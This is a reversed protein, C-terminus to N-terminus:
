YTLTCRSKSRQNAKNYICAECISRITFLNAANSVIAIREAGVYRVDRTKSLTKEAPCNFFRKENPM